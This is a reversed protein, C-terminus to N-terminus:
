STGSQLLSCPSKQAYYGTSIRTNALGVPEMRNEQILNPYIRYIGRFHSNIKGKTKFELQNNVFDVPENTVLQGNNGIMAGDFNSM